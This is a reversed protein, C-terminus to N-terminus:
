RKDIPTSLERKPFTSMNIKTLGFLLTKKEIIHTEKKTKGFFVFSTMVSSRSLLPVIERLGLLHM